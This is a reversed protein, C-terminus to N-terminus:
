VADQVVGALHEPIEDQYGARARIILCSVSGPALERCAGPRAPSPQDYIKCTDGLALHGCDQALSFYVTDAPMKFPDEGETLPGLVRDYPVAETLQETRMAILNRKHESDSMLINAGARCCAGACDRVCDIVPEANLEIRRRKTM